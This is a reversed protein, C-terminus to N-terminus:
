MFDKQKNLSAVVDKRLVVHKNSVPWQRLNANHEPDEEDWQGWAKSFGHSDEGTAEAALNKQM